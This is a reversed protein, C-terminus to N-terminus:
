HLFDFSTGLYLFLYVIIEIYTHINRGQNAMKGSQLVILYFTGKKFTFTKFLYNVNKSYQM